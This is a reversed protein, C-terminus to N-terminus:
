KRITHAFHNRPDCIKCRRKTKVMNAFRVGEVTKAHPNKGIMNACRVGEVTQAHPNEGITNACRVGEVTKANANERLINANGREVTGISGISGLTQSTRWFFLSAIFTCDDLFVNCLGASPICGEIWQTPSCGSGFLVFTLAKSLFDFCRFVSM